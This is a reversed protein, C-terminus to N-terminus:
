SARLSHTQSSPTPGATPSKKMCHVDHISLRPTQLAQVRWTKVYRAEHHERPPLKDPDTKPDSHESGLSRNQETRCVRVGSELTWRLSQAGGLVHTPGPVLQLSGLVSRCDAAGPCDCDQM